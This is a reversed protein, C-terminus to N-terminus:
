LLNTDNTAPSWIFIAIAIYWNTVFYDNWEYQNYTTFVNDTDYCAVTTWFYWDIHMHKPISILKIIQM